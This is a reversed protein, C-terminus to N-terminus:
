KQDKKQMDEMNNETDSWSLLVNFIYINQIQSPAIKEVSPGHVRVSPLVDFEESELLPILKANILSTKGAGSQAYLLSVRNSVILSLLESAEQDRGFFLKSDDREYPRPGIYPNNAKEPDIDKSNENDSLSM